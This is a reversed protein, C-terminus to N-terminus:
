VAGASDSGDPQALRPAPEEASNLSRIGKQAGQVLEAAERTSSDLLENKEVGPAPLEGTRVEVNYGQNIREALATLQMQLDTRLENLRGEDALGSKAILAEAIKEIEIKILDDIYGSLPDLVDEPIETKALEKKMLRIHVIREYASALRDLAFAVSAAIPPAAVLLVQFESSSIARVEAEPRNEGALESFPGLIQQLAVFENGLNKLGSNVRARPIMFDVEFDGLVLQENGIRFFRLSSAAGNVAGIFREVVRQVHVMDAVATEPTQGDVSLVHEIQALLSSGLLEAIQMEEIERRWIPSFDNTVSNGLISRLSERESNVQRRSQSDQPNEAIGRLGNVLGKLHKPYKTETIEQKLVDVIAHLREANM